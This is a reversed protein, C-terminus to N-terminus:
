EGDAFTLAHVVEVGCLENARLALGHQLVQPIGAGSALYIRSNSPILRVAQEPATLKNRYIQSINM